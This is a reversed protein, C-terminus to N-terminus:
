YQNTSLMVLTCAEMTQIGQKRALATLKENEAGPNFIIRKPKLSLIYDLYEEQHKENMYMTVTDIDNVIEKSTTIDTDAVRAPRRGIAVVPHGHSRLRQIALHSYRSPNGSAGLVLTKKPKM